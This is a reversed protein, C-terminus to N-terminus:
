HDYSYFRTLLIRMKELNVSELPHPTDELVKLTANGLQTVVHESEAVSVMKDKEGICVMVPNQIQKFDNDQLPKKALGPMMDATMQMIIKWDAPAHREELTRAFGPLKEQIKDPNLMSVEREASEPSWDFKTALTCIRGLRGPFYRAMWLAVYGGMSYGFVDAKEIKNKELYRTVDGSFLDMDFSEDPTEGGHGSFNILHVSFNNELIKKLPILQGSSGLAGHLLILHRM